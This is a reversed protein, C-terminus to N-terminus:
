WSTLRIAILGQIVANLTAQDNAAFAHQGDQPRAIQANQTQGAGGAPGTYITYISIGQAYANDAANNTNSFSNPQGDTFLFIARNNTRAHAMLENVAANIGQDTPTGGGTNVPTVINEITSHLVDFNTNLPALPSLIYRVIASNGAFTVFGIQYGNDGGCNPQLSDVLNLLASRAADVRRIAPGGGIPTVDQWLMSGSLDQVIVIDMQEYKVRSSAYLDIHNLDVGTAGLGLAKILFTEMAGTPNGSGDPFFESKRATVMVANYPLTPHIDPFVVFPPVHAADYTGIQIDRATEGNPMLASGTWLTVPVGHVQNYGAYELVQHTTDNVNCGARLARAGALSAADAAIKLENYAVYMQGVDIVLGALGILALMSIIVFVLIAGRRNKLIGKM